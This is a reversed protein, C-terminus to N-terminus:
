QGAGEKEKIGYRLLSYVEKNAYYLQKSEGLAAAYLTRKTLAESVGRRSLSDTLLEVEINKNNERSEWNGQYRYGSKNEFFKIM